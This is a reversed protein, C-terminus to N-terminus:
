KGEKMTDVYSLRLRTKGATSPHVLDRYLARNLTLGGHELFYSTCDLYHVMSDRSAIAAIDTNLSAIHQLLCSSVNSSKRWVSLRSLM